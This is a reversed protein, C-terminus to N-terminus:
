SWRTNLYPASGARPIRGFTKPSNRSPWATVIRGTILLYLLQSDMPPWFCPIVGWGSMFPVQFYRGGDQFPQAIKAADDMTPYAGVGMFPIGLSGDTERTHIMPLVVQEDARFTM